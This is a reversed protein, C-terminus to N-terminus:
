QRLANQSEVHRGALSQIYSHEVERSVRCGSLVLQLRCITGCAARQRLYTYAATIWDPVLQARVVNFEERRAWIAAPRTDTPSWDMLLCDCHILTLSADGVKNVQKARTCM